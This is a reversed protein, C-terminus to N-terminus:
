PLFKEIRKQKKWSHFHETPSFPFHTTLIKNIIKEDLSLHNALLIKNFRGEHPTDAEYFKFPQGNTAIYYGYQIAAMRSLPPLDKKLLEIIEEHTEPEYTAGMGRYLSKGALISPKNWFAAEIGMTSGFTIIKDSALLLEYSGTTSDAPIVHFNGKDLNNLMRIQENDVGKLNPHIRLYFNYDKWDKVDERLRMLGEVQSSYLHSKWEKGISAFENESSNFIGINKKAPDWSNPLIEKQGETFNYLSMKGERKKRYIASAIEEAVIPDANQWHEYISKQFTDANHLFSNHFTVYHHIDRGREHTYCEAGSHVCAMFAAKLHTFRANFIYVLDTKNSALYNKISFYVAAAGILYSYVLEHNMDPTPNLTNSIISSGAAFGIDFDDIYLGQLEQISNFKKPLEAIRKKDEETLQLFPRAIIKGDLADYGDQRKRMCRKCADYTMYPNADCSPLTEDCYLHTIEDGNNIHEQIIELDTAFQPTWLIQSSFVAIRMKASEV